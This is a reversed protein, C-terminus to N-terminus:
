GRVPRRATRRTLRPDLAVYALGTLAAVDLIYLYRYDCAISIAFFSAAFALAGGLMAAIGLDAPDRRVLLFGLLAFALGAYAVHSMAPTDLFWTVYNYLRGDEATRRATMELAKLTAPPGEVGVTVPLCRDIVPTAAVQRFALARARLWLGPDSRILDLWEARIVQRPVRKLGLALTRDATLVDVREPSYLRQANARLYDGVDPAVADIRPTPRGPQLAAAAALDYTALLRLGKEGAGDPAGAGQPKATASLLLTLAAVAVMWGVALGSSRLWGRGSLGWAVALAAPLVLILGNQRLLGAVAFLLAALALSLWPTRADAKGLGGALAVFGAIAAYAFWVDKWVIAPYILMQPLAVAGLAVLPALWSTQPRLRPLVAWSGFILLGSAAVALATGRHLGDFVGLLWGFIAPNWTTRVGFRGEHLALVSDVTLHGPLNLWLMAALGGLLVLRFAWRAAAGSSLGRVSV